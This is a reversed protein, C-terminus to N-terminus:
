GLNVKTLKFASPNDSSGCQEFQFNKQLEKINLTGKM